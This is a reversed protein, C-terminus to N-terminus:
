DNFLGMREAELAAEARSSINLKQYINKVYGAVTTKKIGLLKSTEFNTMGKSIYLLVDKERKTLTSSSLATKDKNENAKGGKSTPLLLGAQNEGDKNQFHKLIRRAISPSIPPECKLIRRFLHGLKEKDHEKLLYGQAGAQLAEFLYSDDDYATVVVCLTEPHTQKIESLLETGRGDPLRMDLIAISFQNELIQKRGQELTSVEIVKSDSFIETLLNSLLKRMYRHDDLILIKEM